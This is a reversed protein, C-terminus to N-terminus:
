TGQHSHFFTFSITSGSSSTVVLGKDAVFPIPVTVTTATPVLATWIITNSSSNDKITATVSGGSTNSVTFGKVRIPVGSFVATNATDTPFVRTVLAM